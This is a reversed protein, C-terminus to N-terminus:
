NISLTKDIPNPFFHWVSNIRDEKQKQVTPRVLFVIQLFFIIIIIIIYVKIRGV